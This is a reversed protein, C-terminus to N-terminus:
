ANDWEAWSTPPVYGFFDNLLLSVANFSSVTATEMTSILREFSNPYYLGEDPRVPAFDDEKTVPELKPYALWRKVVTKAVNGQGFLDDLMEAELPRDSFMKVVHFTGEGLRASTEPSLARLYNLSNFTPKCSSSTTFTGFIEVPMVTKEPLGFYSARPASANTMVFSVYLPVYPQKPIRSPALSNVMQIGTQHFPAALIVADYTGSGVGSATRVVWQARGSRPADLKLISQVRANEGLRLRAGSRGVFNEFIQRSGGRVSVAGTAALSVLAGVGHLRDIPTGYNVQTAASIIENTFLDAVGQKGFFEDAYLSAPEQLGTIATFNSVSTFAGRSVFEPSYLSVFDAVTKQVLSRVTFPSRGYRWILKAKQWWSWGLKEEELVFREGDWIAMGGDEGGYADEELEFVKRAKQLHKNASVFISAGLEVPPDSANRPPSFPDDNWPWIVTSRGGVYEATDYVTVETELGAGKLDGFHRLFYAASSGGAGAGVIAVRPPRAENWRRGAKGGCDRLPAEFPTQASNVPFLLQSTAPSILLGLLLPLSLIM